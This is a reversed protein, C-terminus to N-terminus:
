GGWSFFRLTVDPWAGFRGALGALAAADDGDHIGALVLAAGCGIGKAGAIDHELSDGIAIVRALPPHDLSELAFRYMEPYPKGIWTVSGGLAEYLDAIRGCGFAKGRPTLMVKDPNTCICPVQRAALPALLRRYDDLGRIDGDSGSLFLLDAEAPADAQRVPLGSLASRDGGRSLLLCRADPAVELAGRDLLHWAVEGSTVVGEFLDRPFGLTELREVNVSARRGSNSLLLSRKGRAKLETLAELAGPYPRAGDHLVGYQDLLFVDHAAALAAVSSAPVAFTM